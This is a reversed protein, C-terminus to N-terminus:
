PINIGSSRGPIIDEYGRKQSEAWRAAIQQVSKGTRNATDILIETLKSAKETNQVFPDSLWRQLSQYGEKTARTVQELSQKAKVGTQTKSMQKKTSDSIRQIAKGTTSKTWKVAPMYGIKALANVEALPGALLTASTFPRSRFYLDPDDGLAWIDAAMGTAFQRGTVSGEKEKGWIHEVTSKNEGAFDEAGRIVAAIELIGELNDTLDQRLNEFGSQGVRELFTQDIDKRVEKIEEFVPKKLVDAVTKGMPTPAMTELLKPGVVDAAAEAAGYAMGAISSIPEIIEETITKPRMGEPAGGIFVNRAAKGAEIMPSLDINFRAKLESSIEESSLGASRAKEIFTNPSEEVDVTQVGQEPLSQVIETM